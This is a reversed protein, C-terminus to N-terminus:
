RLDSLDQRPEAGRDALMSAMLDVESRQGAVMTEALRVVQPEGAENVAAQAMEVGAVHHTIMLQLYLIEAAQGGASDLEDMEALSAMGPMARYDPSGPEGTSVGGDMEMAADGDSSMDMSDSMWTMRDGSRALSLDWGELWSQMRGIQNSQTTAIDYALVDVDTSESEQIIEMSMDVAQAHHESMARAFGAEVSDDGPARQLLLVVVLAVLAVVLGAALALVLPRGSPAGAASM